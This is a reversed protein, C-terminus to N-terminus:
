SATPKLGSMGGLEPDPVGLFDDPSAAKDWDWNEIGSIEARRL